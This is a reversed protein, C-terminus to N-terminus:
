VEEINTFRSMTKKHLNDLVRAKTENEQRFHARLAMSLDFERFNIKKQAVSRMVAKGSENFNFKEVFELGKEDLPSFIGRITLYSFYLLPLSVVGVIVCALLLPEFAFGYTYFGMLSLVALPLGFGLMIVVPYIPLYLFKVANSEAQNLLDSQVENDGTTQGAM